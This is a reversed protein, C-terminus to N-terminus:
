PTVVVSCRAPKSSAIPSSFVLEFTYTGAETPYFIPDPLEDSALNAKPGATQQWKYSCQSRPFKRPETSKSGDLQVITNVKATRPCTPKATPVINADQRIEVRDKVTKGDLEATLDLMAHQLWSEKPKTFILASTPSAPNLVKPDGKERIVKWTVKPEAGPQDVVVVKGALTVPEGTNMRRDPGAYVWLKQKPNTVTVTLATTKKPDVDLTQTQGKYTVNLTYPGKEGIPSAGRNGIIDYDALVVTGVGSKGTVAQAVPKDDALAVVSAGAVPKGAPDVAKVNVSWEVKTDINGRTYSRGYLMKIKKYYAPADLVSDRFVIGHARAASSMWYYFFQYDKGDGIVEFRNNLFTIGSGGGWGVQFHYQNTRFVNDYIRTLSEPHSRVVNISSAWYKPSKRIAVITNKWVRNASYKPCDLDLPDAQGYGPEAVVRCFNHHVNAHTPGELKIGHTRTSPYEPNPMERPEVINNYFDINTGTLHIGRGKSKVVNAYVRMNPAHCGIAYGNTTRSRHRIVNHHVKALHGTAGGGSVNIGWQCGGDLTNHHIDMPGGMSVNILQTGPWHRDTVEKVTSICHNHAIEGRGSYIVNINNTDRSNVEITLNTIKFNDSGRIYVAHCFRGPRTHSGVEKVIRGNAYTIAGPPAVPQPGQVIRGNTLTFNNGSGFGEPPIGPFNKRDTEINYVPRLFVGSCRNVGVETGYTVTHGGLDLTIGDGKIMLATRAATIDRTLLYTAGPKDLVGPADIKIVEPADQAYASCACFVCLVAALGAQLVQKETKM